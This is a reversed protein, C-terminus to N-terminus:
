FRRTTPRGPDKGRARVWGSDKKSPRAQAQPDSGSCGTTGKHHDFRCKKQVALADRGLDTTPGSSQPFFYRNCATKLAGPTGGM